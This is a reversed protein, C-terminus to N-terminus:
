HGSPKTKKSIVNFAFFTYFLHSLQSLHSGQLSAQMVVAPLAEVRSCLLHPRMKLQALLAVAM